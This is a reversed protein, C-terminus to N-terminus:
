RGYTEDLAVHEPSLRWRRRVIRPARKKPWLAVSAAVNTQLPRESRRRAINNAPKTTSVKSLFVILGGSIYSGRPGHLAVRSM